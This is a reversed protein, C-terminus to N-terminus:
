SFNKNDESTKSSGYASAVDIGQGSLNVNDLCRM